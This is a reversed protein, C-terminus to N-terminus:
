IFSEQTYKHGRSYKVRSYVQTGKLISCADNRRVDQIGNDEQTYQLLGKNTIDINEEETNKATSNHDDYLCYVIM